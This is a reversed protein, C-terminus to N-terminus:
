FGFFASLQALASPAAAQGEPGAAFDSGLSSLDSNTFGPGNSLALPNGGGGMMQSNMMSNFGSIGAQGLQNKLYQGVANQPPAAQAASGQMGSQAGTQGQQNGTDRIMALIQSLASPEPQPSFQPLTNM